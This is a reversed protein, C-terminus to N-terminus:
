WGWVYGRAVEQDKEKLRNGRGLRCSRKLAREFVIVLSWEIMVHYCRRLM